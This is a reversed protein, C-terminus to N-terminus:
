GIYKYLESPRHGGTKVYNNTSKVKKSITRRFASNILPCGLIIEYVQKLEGITFESPMLNFIIDTDIAKKRLDYIGKLIMLAHDFAIENSGILEYEYNNTTKNKIFRKAYFELETENNILKINIVENSDDIYIDFWNATEGVKDFLKTKDVLSMYSTSITRGRSDRDVNDFTELQEMYVNNLNTEKKLIRKAADQSTEDFDVYGGPLCWKGKDPEKKRNVLLIRFYKQPLERCNDNERSDVSFILVDATYAFNFRDNM